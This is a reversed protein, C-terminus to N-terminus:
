LWMKSGVFAHINAHPENRLKRAEIRRKAGPECAHHCAFQADCVLTGFAGGGFSKKARSGVFTNDWWSLTYGSYVPGTEQRWGHRLAPREYTISCLLCLPFRYTLCFRRRRGGRRTCRGLRKLKRTCTPARSSTPAHMDGPAKSSPLRSATPFEVATIPPWGKLRSLVLPVRSPTTLCLLQSLSV